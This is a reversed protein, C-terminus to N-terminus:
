QMPIEVRVGSPLHIVMTSTSSPSAPAIELSSFGSVEGEPKSREERYKRLWYQFVHISLENDKCVEQQTKIGSLYSEVIPYM